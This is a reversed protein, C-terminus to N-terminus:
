VILSILETKIKTREKEGRKMEKEKEREKERGGNKRIFIILIYNNSLYM